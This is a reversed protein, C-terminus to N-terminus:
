RPQTALVPPAPRGTGELQDVLEGLLEAHDVLPEPVTLCAMDVGMDALRGFRDVLRDVSQKPDLSGTTTIAIEQFDRGENECHQRLVELKREVQGEFLNSADAYRAVFRLTKREGGGGILIPPRRVPLPHNVPGDLRFHDGHFPSADDDFMRHAIQLTEELQEFREALPPFPIGLSRAELENWGAGLGLWARGGSLVDLTTVTKILLGPSRYSVATVLAGLQLRSTRAATWALASYAELMPEEPPGVMPIQFLHDMFWISHLGVEEAASVDKELRDAIPTVGFDVPHWGFEM